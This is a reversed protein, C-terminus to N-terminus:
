LFAYRSGRVVGLPEIKAGRERAMSGIAGADPFQRSPPQYALLLHPAPLWQERALQQAAPSSESLGWLSVFLGPDLDLSPALGSPVLTIAGPRPRRDPETLVDVADEGFITTLFTWQLTLVAPLDLIVHTPPSDGGLRRLARAFGGHGGGWEVITGARPATVGTAATFRALHYAHHIATPSTPVPGRVLVPGGVLDEELARSREDAPLRDCVYRLERRRMTRGRVLMTEQLVGLSMFDFPPRPLLRAVLAREYDAWSDTMLAPANHAVFLRHIETARAAQTAFRGRQDGKRRELTALGRRNRLRGVRRDLHRRLRIAALVGPARSVSQRPQESTLPAPSM